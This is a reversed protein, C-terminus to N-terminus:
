RLGEHALIFEALELQKDVRQALSEGRSTEVTIVPIGLRKTVEHNLSGEPPTGYLTLGSCLEGSEATVMIDWILDSMLSVDECIISNGLDDEGDTHVLGEHLDLVLDPSKDLIDRYIADDIQEADFGDPDGPFYRNADRDSKTKRRDHQAGYLNAPALIYVTGAKLTADKLLNGATWGATEDGHLGCVFYIVPGDQEGRLCVVSNEWESGEMFPYETKETQYQQAFRLAYDTLKWQATDETQPLIPEQRVPKQVTPEQITPEQEAPEQETPKQACGAMLLALLLAAAIVKKM